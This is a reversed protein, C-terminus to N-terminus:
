GEVTGASSTRAAPMVVQQMHFQIQNEHYNSHFLEPIIQFVKGEYIVRSRETTFDNWDIRVMEVAYADMAGANMAAKGKAFSVDAWVEGADEWEIGASDLGYTGVVAEKRNQIMIRKNRLGATYGTM